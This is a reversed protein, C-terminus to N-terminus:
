QMLSRLAELTANMVRFLLPDDFAVVPPRVEKALFPTRVNMAASLPVHLQPSQVIGVDRLIEIARELTTEIAVDIGRDAIARRFAYSFASLGETAPTSAAATENELCASVLLANLQPEETTTAKVSLSTRTSLVPGLMPRAGAGFPRYAVVRDVSKGVVTTAKIRTADVQKFMGGSFCADLVITFVGREIGQTASVLVDDHLLLDYLVLSERIEGNRVTQTGHGSYYFVVRDDQGVGSLLQGLAQMVAELTAESDHLEAVEDFGFTDRLMQAVMQADAICSPLDRSTGEYDDIGVVLARRRGIADGIMKSEKACTM